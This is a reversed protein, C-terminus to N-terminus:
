EGHAMLTRLRVASDVVVMHALIQSAHTNDSLLLKEPDTNETMLCKGEARCFHSLPSVVSVLEGYPKLLAMLDSSLQQAATVQVTLLSEAVPGHMSSRIADLFRESSAPPAILLVKIGANTLMSVTDRVGNLIVARADVHDFQSIVVPSGDVGSKEIYLLFASSMIVVKPHAELILKLSDSVFGKCKSSFDKGLRAPENRYVGLLAPCSHQILARGVLGNKKLLAGFSQSYMDAHSDGWLIVDVGGAKVLGLACRTDEFYQTTGICLAPMGERSYKLTPKLLPPNNAIFVGAACILLTIGLYKAILANGDSGSPKRFRNEVFHWTGIAFLASTAIAAASIGLGHGWFMRSFVLLPQHWLYLSYSILGIGVLAKTALIKGAMNRPSAFLIILCTALIAPASVLSPVRSTSTYSFFAVIVSILGIIALWARSSESLRDPWQRQVAVACISGALLEWARFPLLYYNSSPYYRSAYDAAGLSFASFLVLAAVLNRPM